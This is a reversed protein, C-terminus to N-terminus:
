MGKKAAKTTVSPHQPPRTVSKQAAFRATRKKSGDDVVYDKFAVMYATEHTPRQQEAM